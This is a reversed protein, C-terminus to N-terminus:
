AAQERIWEFLDGRGVRLTEAVLSRRVAHWWHVVAAEASRESAVPFYHRLTTAGAQHALLDRYLRRTRPDSLSEVLPRRLKRRLPVFAAGVRLEALACERVVRAALVELPTDALDRVVERPKWGLKSFTFVIVEHPPRPCSGIRELLERWAGRTAMTRDVTAVTAPIAARDLPPRRDNACRAVTGPLACERGRAQPCAGCREVRSTARHRRLVYDAWIRTFRWFEARSADFTGWRRWVELWTEQALDDAVASDGVQRLVYAYLRSRNAEILRCVVSETTAM